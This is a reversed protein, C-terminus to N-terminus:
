NFKKKFSMRKLLESRILKQQLSLTNFMQVCEEARRILYPMLFKYNGYPVYKFVKHGEANLTHTLNEGLGM